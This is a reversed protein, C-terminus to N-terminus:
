QCIDNVCTMSELQPQLRTPDIQLLCFSFSATYPVVALARARMSCTQCPKARHVNLRAQLLFTSIRPWAHMNFRVQATQACLVRLLQAVQYLVVRRQAALHVKRGDRGRCEDADERLQSCLRRISSIVHSKVSPSGMLHCM